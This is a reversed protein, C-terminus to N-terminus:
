FANTVTAARGPGLRAGPFKKKTIELRSSIELKVKFQFLGPLSWGGNTRCPSPVIASVDTEGHLGPMVAAGLVDTTFQM